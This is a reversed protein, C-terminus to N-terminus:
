EKKLCVTPIITASIVIVTNDLKSAEDLKQLLYEMARDFEINCALYAKCEDPLDLNQVESKHKDAQFNGSFTYSMHGSVSMYSLFSFQHKGWTIILLFPVLMLLLPIINRFITSIISPLFQTVQWVDGVSYLSIPTKFFQYYVFQMVYLLPLLLM